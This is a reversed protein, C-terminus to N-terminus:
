SNSAQYSKRWQRYGIVSLLAYLVMLLAYVELGRTQYLWVSFANLFFWYIWASLVKKAELYTALFSFATSFADAFPLEADTQYKFAYGLGFSILIFAGFLKIHRTLKWESIPLNKGNGGKWSLWGYVGMGVYFLYLISESYLKASIFLAVSLASGLIGFIWGIRFEKIILIIFLLNSFVATWEIISYLQETM